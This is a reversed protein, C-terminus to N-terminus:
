VVEVQKIRANYTDPKINGAKDKAPVRTQVILLQLGTGGELAAKLGGKAAVDINLHTAIPKLFDKLAGMAFKNTRNHGMTQIDGAKPKDHESIAESLEEISVLELNVNIWPEENVDKTEWSKFLVIHAGSPFVSFQPLDEIDDMSIDDLAIADIKGKTVEVM